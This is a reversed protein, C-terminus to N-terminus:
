SDLWNGQSNESWSIIGNLNLRKFVRQYDRSSILINENLNDDPLLIKSNLLWLTELTYFTKSQM